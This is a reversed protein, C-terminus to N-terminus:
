CYLRLLKADDVIEGNLLYTGTCSIEWREQESVDMAISQLGTALLHM